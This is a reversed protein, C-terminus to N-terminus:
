HTLSHDIRCHTIRPPPHWAPGSPPDPDSRAHPRYIWVFFAVFRGGLHPFITANKSLRSDKSSLRSLTRPTISYPYAAKNATTLCKAPKKRQRLEVKAVRRPWFEDFKAGNGPYRPIARGVASENTSKAILSAEAFFCPAVRVGTAGERLYETQTRTM